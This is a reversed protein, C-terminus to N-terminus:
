QVLDAEQPELIVAGNYIRNTVIGKKEGVITIQTQRDTTNVYLTRGEVVRAYVGEPTQPGPEIGVM